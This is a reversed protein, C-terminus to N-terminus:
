CSGCVEGDFACGKNESCEGIALYTAHAAIVFSEVVVVVAFFKRVKASAQGNDHGRSHSPWSGCSQSCDRM